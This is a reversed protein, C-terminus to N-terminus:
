PDGDPRDCSSVMFATMAEKFAPDEEQEPHASVWRAHRRADDCRGRYAYLGAVRARCDYALSGSEALYIAAEYLAFGGEYDEESLRAEALSAVEWDRGYSSALLIEDRAEEPMVEVALLPIALPLGIAVVLAAVYVAAVSGLKRARSPPAPRPYSPAVGAAELRDYLHPHTTATATVAPLGSVRHITALARAYTAEHHHAHADAEKEREVMWRRLALNLAVVGAFSAVVVEWGLEMAHALVWAIPLWVAGMAARVLKVSRSEALHGLEHSAIAELGEDDLAALAADTFLLKDGLPFAAANADPSVVEWTPPPTQRAAASAAAVIGQLRPGAPKAIRLWTALRLTEGTVMLAYLLLGGGV